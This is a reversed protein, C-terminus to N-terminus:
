NRPAMMQAESGVGAFTKTPILDHKLAPSWLRERPERNNLDNIGGQTLVMTVSLLDQAALPFSVLFVSSSLIYGPLCLCAYSFKPQLWIKKM